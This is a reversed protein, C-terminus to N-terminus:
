ITITLLKFFGVCQFFLCALMFYVSKSKSIVPVRLEHKILQNSEFSKDTPFGITLTKSLDNKKESVFIRFDLVANPTM